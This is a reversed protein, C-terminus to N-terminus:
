KFIWTKQQLVFQEHLLYKRKAHRNYRQVKLTCSAGAGVVFLASCLFLASCQTVIKLEQYKM